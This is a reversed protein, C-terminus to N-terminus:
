GELSRKASNIRKWPKSGRKSLHVKANAFFLLTIELIVGMLVIPFDCQEKRLIKWLAKARSRKTMTGITFGTRTKLKLYGSIVRLRQHWYDNLTLPSATYIRAEPLYCIRYGKEAMQRELEAEDVQEFPDLRLGLNRLVTIETSKPYELAIEHHMAWHFQSLRVVWNEPPGVCIIRGGVLGVTPDNFASLMRQLCHEEPLIDASILFIIESEVLTSFIQNIANGKGCQVPNTLITITHPYIQAFNRAISFTEDNPDDCVLCFHAVIGSTQNWTMLRALLNKLNQAERYCPIGIGIRASM